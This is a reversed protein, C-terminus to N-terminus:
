AYWIEDRSDDEEDGDSQYRTTPYERELEQWDLMRGAATENFFKVNYTGFSCDDVAQRWSRLGDTCVVHVEKISVFDKLELASFYLFNEDFPGEIRMRQILPKEPTACAFFIPKFHFMDMDFNVWTYRPQSGSCFAKVYLSRAIASRRSDGCAHLLAPPRTRSRVYVMAKFTRNNPASYVDVIRPEAETLDWIRLRLEAPLRSFQHFKTTRKKAM